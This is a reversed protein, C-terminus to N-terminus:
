CVIACRLLVRCCQRSLPRWSAWTWRVASSFWTRQRSYSLSGASPLSRSRCFALSFARSLSLFLFDSNLEVDNERLCSRSERRAFVREVILKSGDARREIRGRAHPSLPTFTHSFSLILSFSLLPWTGAMHTTHKKIGNRNWDVAELGVRCGGTTM